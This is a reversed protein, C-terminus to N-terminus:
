ITVSQICPQHPLILLTERDYLLQAQTDKTYQTYWFSM